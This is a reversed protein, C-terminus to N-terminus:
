AARLAHVTRCKMAKARRVGSELLRVVDNLLAVSMCFLKEYVQFPVLVKVEALSTGTSLRKFDDFAVVQQEGFLHKTFAFYRRVSPHIRVPCVEAKIFGREM